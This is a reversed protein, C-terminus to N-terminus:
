YDYIHELVWHHSAMSNLFVALKPVQVSYVLRKRHAPSFVKSDFLFQAEDVKTGFTDDCLVTVAMDDNDSIEIFSVGAAALAPMIQSFPGWRPVAIILRGDGLDQLVRLRSDIKSITVPDAKVVMTVYEVAPGYATASAWGILKSYVAKIGFELTFFLKRETKRIMNPGVLPTEQWMRCVWDWFPFQYWAKDYILQAYAQQASTILEDEPTRASATWYTLRGITSEYLGKLLYEVTTSIGIVRLMTIYEDNEPYVDKTLAIVRDYLTWYENISQFFPFDSPNNGASLFKAYENPNFVLYWEPITLYTQEEGKAYHPLKTLLDQLRRGEASSDAALPTPRLPDALKRAFDPDGCRYIVITVVLALGAIGYLCLKLLRVAFRKLTKM